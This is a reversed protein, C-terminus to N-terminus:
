RRTILKREYGYGNTLKLEITEFRHVVPSFEKRYQCYLHQIQVNKTENHFM